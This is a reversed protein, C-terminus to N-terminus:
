ESDHKGYTEDSEGQYMEHNACTILEDLEEQSLSQWFDDFGDGFLLEGFFVTYMGAHGREKTTELLENLRAKRESNM